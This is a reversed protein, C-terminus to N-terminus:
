LAIQGILQIPWKFRANGGREDDPVLRMKDSIAQGRKCTNNIIHHDDIRTRAIRCNFNQLLKWGPNPMKGPAAIKRRRAIMGNCLNLMFPNQIDIRIFPQQYRIQQREPMAQRIGALRRPLQAQM